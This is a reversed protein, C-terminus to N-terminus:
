SDIEEQMVQRAKVLAEVLGEFQGIELSLHVFNFQVVVTNEDPEMWVSIFDGDADEYEVLDVPAM